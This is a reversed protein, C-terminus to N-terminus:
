CGYVGYADAALRWIESKRSVGTHQECSLRGGHTGPRAQTERRGVARTGRPEPTPAGPARATLRSCSVM